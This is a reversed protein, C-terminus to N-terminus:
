QVIIRKKVTGEPLSINLIYVGKSLQNLAYNKVFAGQQNRLIDSFVQAGVMNVLSIQVDGSVPMQVNVNFHGDTPNPYVQVFPELNLVNEVSVNQVVITNSTDSCGASNTAILSYSGNVAPTLSQGSGGPNLPTGNLLWQYTFGGFFTTLSGNLVNTSIGSNSFSSPLPERITVSIGPSISACGTAPNTVKVSYSTNLPFITPTPVVYMTDTAGNIITTDNQYWQYQLSTDASGPIYLTMKDNGCINNSPLATIPSIPPLNYVMITDLATYVTDLQKIITFSGSTGGGFPSNTTYNYTGPGPVLFTYTGGDDDQSVNDDDWVSLAISLNSLVVGLNSWSNSTSNSGASSQYTAGGHTLKFYLDPSGTCAGFFSPEEVDGCWWNGSSTTTMADFVHNYVKTNLSTAYTGPTNYVVTPPNQVNGTTGNGFDWEYETVQPTGLNILASFNVSISDCGSGPNFNYYPNGGAAPLVQLTLNFSQNVNQVGLPTDATALVSVLVNFSGPITPTGCIKVCGRQTAPDSTVVYTNNANNAQWSLGQPIGTVGTIVIQQLTVTVGQTPFTQPLYFTLDTDYPQGQQGDPLVSPCLTPETGTCTLDISCGPCGTQASVINGAASILTFGFAILLSKTFKM